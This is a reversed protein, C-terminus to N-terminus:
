VRKKLRCHRTMRLGTKNGYGGGVALEAAVLLEEDEVTVAPTTLELDATRFM